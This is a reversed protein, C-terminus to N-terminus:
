KRYLDVVEFLECVVLMDPSFPEGIENLLETFFTQHADYWYEHSLDGEGELRAFESDVESMKKVEVSINQIIALPQNLGDLVIDYQGVAPLPENSREYLIHASCTARKMGKVVLEGLEDGMQQEGDGFMWANPTPLELQKKQLFSAWYQEIITQKM